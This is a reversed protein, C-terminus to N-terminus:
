GNHVEERALICRVQHTTSVQYSPPVDQKCVESAYQCRPAFKCGPPLDTPDPMMGKIPSLRKVEKNLSPISGLLGKTYPHTPRKFIDSLTGLEIIQGAYMIAVRDCNQAVVGLDHTILLMATNLRNKLATIMDLVQAQITVDLATTPEDAILLIPNCALAIAIIVRQKMGGSFQHPYEHSRSAPIGVMELMSLAQKEMEEKGLAKNHAEVVEMIQDGVSMVPNLSTMPDQFIMSISNGRISRMQAESLTLMDKGEFFIRGSKIIGPPSPILRLISRALTTKGAGTEGVLGLTEGKKMSLSIDNLAHVVADDTEYHVTLNEIRILEDVTSM